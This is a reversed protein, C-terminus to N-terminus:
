LGCATWAHPRIACAGMSAKYIALSINRILTNSYLKRGWETECAKVLLNAAAGGKMVSLPIWKSENVEVKGDM